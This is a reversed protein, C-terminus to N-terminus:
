WSLNVLRSKTVLVEFEDWGFVAMEEVCLDPKELLHERVADLMPPVVCQPHGSRQSQSLVVFPLILWKTLRCRSVSSQITTLDHELAGGGRVYPM